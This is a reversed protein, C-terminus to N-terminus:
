RTAPRVAVQENDPELLLASLEAHNNVLAEFDAPELWGTNNDSGYRFDEPLARGGPWRERHEWGHPPLIVFYNEFELACRAENESILVEHLKEGPRIGIVRIESDRAITKALDVVRMSPLKPVFIEGGKMEQIALIVLDVGDELTIWFRTMREDTITVYGNKRQEAFLPVVSGRSGVVNGYRVAAFRTGKVGSYANGDVFLREACLKTAGYLNVPNVAKDTSVLIAQRVGCDIAADIVNRSGMINTLVAEFPNYECSPIQKLAAAHVVIDVGQMARHLRDRDRVDGIFFRVTSKYASLQQQMELQKLEDRSFIILKKPRYRQLVISAFKKGFSGTGGDVFITLENWQM